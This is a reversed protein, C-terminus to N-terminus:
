VKDVFRLVQFKTHDVMHMVQLSKTNPFWQLNIMQRAEASLELKVNWNETEKKAVFDWEKLAKASHSYYIM